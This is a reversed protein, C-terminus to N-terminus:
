KLLEILEQKTIGRKTKIGKNKVMTRLQQISAAGLNQYEVKIGQFHVLRPNDNRLLESNMKDMAVRICTGCRTNLVGFGASSYWDGLEKKLKDNLSASRMKAFMDLQYKLESSVNM